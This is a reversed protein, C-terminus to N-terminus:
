LWEALGLLVLGALAALSFWLDRRSFHFHDLLYFRGRFGRCKMAAVVRESRDMSRVLLMGVLFGYSRYTHWNMRPRFGRMKMAAHLRQSERHLVDVYRVTFLLLHTLKDPVHLHSLAHGLTSVELSGLLVVLSLVIANAKLAIRAALLLGERTWTLPGWQVLPTGHAGLPLLLLLVLIFVNVGALRKLVELPRLGAAVAAVLAAALAAGLVPFRLSLAVLVSFAAATLVRVRPDVHDIWSRGHTLRASNLLSCHAVDALM